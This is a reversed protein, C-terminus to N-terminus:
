EERGEQDPSILALVDPDEIGFAGLWHSFPGDILEDWPAIDGNLHLGDVGHSSEILAALARRTEGLQKVARALLGLDDAIQTTKIPGETSYRKVIEDLKNM